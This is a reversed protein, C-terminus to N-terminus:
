KYLVNPSHPANDLGQDKSWALKSGYSFDSFLVVLELQRAWQWQALKSVKNSWPLQQQYLTHFQPRKINKNTQCTRCEHLMTNKMIQMKLPSVNLEQEPLKTTHMREPTQPLDNCTKIGRVKWNWEVPNAVRFSIVQTTKWVFLSRWELQKQCTTKVPAM